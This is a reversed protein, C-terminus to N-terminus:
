SGLMTMRPDSLVAEHSLRRGHGAGVGLGVDLAQPARDPDLVRQRAEARLPQPREELVALPHGREARHRATLGHLHDLGAELRDVERAPLDRRVRVEGAARVRVLAEVGGVGARRERPPDVRREQAGVLDRVRLAVVRGVPERRDDRVRLRAEAAREVGELQHLRVDLGAGRADVELVLERGLLLAAVEAALHEDGRALEHPREDGGPERGVHEVHRGHQDGAGVRERRREQRAVDVLDVLREAAPLARGLAEEPDGVPDLGRDRPPEGVRRVGVEDPALGRRGVELLRLLERGRDVLPM